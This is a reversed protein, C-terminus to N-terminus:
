EPLTLRVLGQALASEEGLIMDRLAAARTPDLYPRVCNDYKAIIKAAPLMHGPERGSAVPTTRHLTRGDTTRVTVSAVYRDAVSTDPADIDAVTTKALMAVAEDTRHAGDAFDTLTVTGSLLARGVTYQVSFKADLESGPNPRDVHGRRKPHLHILVDEIDGSALPGLAAASEIASHTSGCCPYQKIIIGPHALAWETGLGELAAAIPMAQPDKREFVRAYGQAHEFANERGSAGARALLTAQVGSAAARGVQLPKASTGFSAKIGSSFAAALSLSAQTREADLGLLRATAAAAGFVGITASPHWGLDYHDPNLMRGLRAAVEVGVAYADVVDGIPGGFREAVALLAPFIVATPHGAMDGQSDDFDLLHATFSNVFAADSVSATGHRGILPARVDSAAEDIFPAVQDFDPSMRAGITTGVTDLIALRAVTRVPDPVVLDDSAVWRGLRTFLPADPPTRQDNM